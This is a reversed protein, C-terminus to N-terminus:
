MLPVAQLAQELMALQKRQLLAKVQVSHRAVWVRKLPAQKLTVQEPWVLQWAQEGMSGVMHMLQLGPKM